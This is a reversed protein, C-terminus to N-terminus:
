KLPVLGASDSDGVFKAAVVKVVDYLAVVVPTAAALMAPKGTPAGAALWVTLSGLAAVVITAVIRELADKTYTSM